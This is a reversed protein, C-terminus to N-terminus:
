TNDGAPIKLSRVDVAGIINKDARNRLFAIAYLPYTDFGIGEGINTDSLKIAPHQGYKQPNAIVYKMSTARNNTAKCEVIVTKGDREFLFDLEPSGSPAHFYYLGMGNVSFASAVMNETIAGKYSSIDGSLIKAPVDDELQSILLGTDIFYAKFESPIKMGELPYSIESVNYARVILGVDVLYQLGEAKEPSHGKANVLSYQFKKYEKALQSPMSDLCAEARLKLVENVKDNGAADKYRGFDDRISQLINRQLSRVANLDHTEFFANVAEPMGGVILYQLYLSRISEHITKEIATHKKISDEVYDIIKLNIETNLLFERFSLPFMSLQQEYGVPIGRVYPERFGKVGLFSGTAIVDYRGDIDWYKLSSRANPCDQIEDLIILTKEPLFRASPIAASIAMVMSDVNFDGEFASHVRKEARLDIYVTNEYFEEGFRRVIFTKGTQRLGKIILPHHRAAKWEILRNWIERKLM